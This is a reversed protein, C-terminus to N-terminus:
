NDYQNLYNEIIKASEMSAQINNSNEITVVANKFKKIIGLAWSKKNLPLHQDLKSNNESTHIAHVYKACKKVYEDKDFGLTKATVQLHGTDLLLKVNIKEFKRLFNVSDEIDAMLYSKNEGEILNHKPIVNNEILLIVGASKATDALLNISEEFIKGAETMSFHELFNQKKGLHEAKAFYSFGAHVAYFPAGIEASLNLADSAMKRSKRLETADLSALNLVFPIKAAPIYNHLLIKVNHSAKIIKKRADKDYPVGSGFELYKINFCSCDELIANIDKKLFANSSTYLPRM